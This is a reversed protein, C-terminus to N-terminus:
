VGGSKDSWQMESCFILVTMFVNPLSVM